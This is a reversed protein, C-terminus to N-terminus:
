ARACRLRTTSPCGSGCSIASRIPSKTTSLRLAHIFCRTTRCSNFTARNFSSSLYVGAENTIADYTDLVDHELETLQQAGPQLASTRYYDGHYFTRLM